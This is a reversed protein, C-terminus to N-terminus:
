SSGFQTYGNSSWSRRLGRIWELGGILDTSGPGICFDTREPAGFLVWDLEMVPFMYGYPRIKLIKEPVMDDTCVVAPWLPESSSLAVLCYSGPTFTSSSSMAM